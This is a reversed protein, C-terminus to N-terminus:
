KIRYIVDVSQALKIVGIMLLGERNGDGRSAVGRPRTPESAALGMARTMNKLEGTTVGSVAGVKRGFGAAIDDAKRRAAKIADATLEGEVQERKTTDFGVMFGDLNPMGILPSLLEKWKSLDAVKIHVGAKMDYKPAGPQAMDAKRIDKRVDRIEVDDAPLGLAAVLARIEGIREEVVKRAAEPDAEYVWIEFDVEGTDPAVYRWGNGNVHIFPYEPLQSASAAFPLLVLAAAVVFKKLM